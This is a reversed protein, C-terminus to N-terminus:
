YAKEVTRGRVISGSLKKGLAISPKEIFHWSLAALILVAPLVVPLSTFSNLSPFVNAATQQVVFGYIYIGYSYDGPLRIKKFFDSGGMSLAVYPLTIYFIYHFLFTHYGLFCLAILLLSIRYDIILIKNFLYCIMGAAFFLVQPSSLLTIYRFPFTIVLVAFVVLLVKKYKFAGIIGILFVMCYCKVELPLTWLSGNVASGFHNSLFLGPLRHSDVNYLLIDSFLFKWTAIDRLYEQLPLSTLLAGIIFVTVITCFILGPWIRFLRMMVFSFHSKKSIFSATIFIGSLFFFLYVALTGMSEGTFFRAPDQYGLNRFLDFSHAFVVMLAAILRILDFNNNSRKVVKELTTMCGDDKLADPEGTRYVALGPDPHL